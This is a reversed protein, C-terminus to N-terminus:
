LCRTLAIPRYNNPDYTDKGPKGIPITIAQSWVPPFEGTVWINNFLELLTRLSARPLHKLMQYHVDDPGVATDHAAKLAEELEVISFPQNYNESDDTPFIIQCKEAEAKYRQFKQTYHSSTSQNISQSSLPV